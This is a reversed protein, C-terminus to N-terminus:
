KPKYQNDKVYLVGLNYAPKYYHPRLDFAREYEKIAAGFRNSRQYALGLNYHARTYMSDLSLAQRLYSIAQSIDGRGLSGAASDNLAVAEPISSDMEAAFDDDSLTAGAGSSTDFADEGLDLSVSTVEVGGSTVYIVEDRSSNEQGNRWVAYIVVACAALWGLINLLKYPM